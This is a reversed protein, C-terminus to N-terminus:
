SRYAPLRGSFMMNVTLVKSASSADLILLLVEPDPGPPLLIEILAPCDTMRFLPDDIEALLVPGPLAPLMWILAPLWNAIVFLETVVSALWDLPPAILIVVVGLPM